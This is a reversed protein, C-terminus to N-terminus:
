RNDLRSMRVNVIISKEINYGGRKPTLLVDCVKPDTGFTVCGPLKVKQNFIIMIQYFDELNKFHKNKTWDAPTNEQSSGNDPIVPPIYYSRNHPLRFANAAQGYKDAPTLILIISPDM